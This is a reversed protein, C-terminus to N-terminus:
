YLENNENKYYCLGADHLGFLDFHKSLLWRTVEACRETSTPKHPFDQLSEEETMDSLPRLLLKFEEAYFRLVIGDKSLEYVQRGVSEMYVTHLKRIVGTVNDKCDCGIYLHLYDQLKM